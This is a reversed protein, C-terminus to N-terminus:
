LECRSIIDEIAEIVKFGRSRIEYLERVLTTEGKEIDIDPCPESAGENLVSGFQQRLEEPIREFREVMSDLKKIERVTAPVRETANLVEACM